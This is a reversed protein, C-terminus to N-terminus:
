AHGARGEARPDAAGVVVEAPRLLRDHIRYGEKVVEVVVNVPQGAVARRMVAHHLNPDFPQGLANVPTVGHRRLADLFMARVLAVGQALPGADGMREAAALARELDDLVPLLDLVVPGHQYRHEEERERRARKQYDEFDARARRLLGLVQDRECDRARLDELDGNPDACAGGAPRAGEAPPVDGAASCHARKIPDAAVERTM